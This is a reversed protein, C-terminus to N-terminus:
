GIKTVDLVPTQTKTVKTAKTTAKKRPKSAATQAEVLYALLTHLKERYDDDTLKYGEGGQIKSHHALLDNSLDRIETHIDSTM